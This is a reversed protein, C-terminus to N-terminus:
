HVAAGVDRYGIRSAADSFGAREIDDLVIPILDTRECKMISDALILFFLARQLLDRLTGGGTGTITGFLIFGLIDNRQEAAALAGSIAFVATAVLDVTTIVDQMLM